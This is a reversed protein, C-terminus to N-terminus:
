GVLGVLWNELFVFEWFILLSAASQRAGNAIVIPM